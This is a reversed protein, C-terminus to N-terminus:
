KAASSEGLQEDNLDTQPQVEPESDVWGNMESSVFDSLSGVLLPNVVAPDKLSKVLDTLSGEVGLRAKLVAAIRAYVRDGMAEFYKVKFAQISDFHKSFWNSDDDVGDFGDFMFGRLVKHVVMLRVKAEKAITDALKILEKNEDFESYAEVMETEVLSLGYLKSLELEGIQPNGVTVTEAKPETKFPLKM